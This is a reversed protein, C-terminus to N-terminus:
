RSRLKALLHLIEIYLWILTVMLGFAGFWEMYKPAGAEAGNEIFDFDLVLNLAAIVVVFLSFCIGFTGSGHIYHAASTAGFMSLLWTVVYVLFIGGTAAVVGLKFNETAKILGSRYAGLLAFLTGFTLGVAQFVIGPYHKEFIASIAGLFLGELAAYIPATVPAWNMKFFTILAFILGGVAGGIAWAMAGSPNTKVMGWTVSASLVLLLLLAGTKHVTGMLTMRDESYDVVREFTRDNLAPNGSRIM